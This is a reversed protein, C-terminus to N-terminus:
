ARYVYAAAVMMIIIQGKSDFSALVEGAVQNGGSEEAAESREQQRSATRACAAGRALKSRSFSVALAHEFGVARSAVVSQGSSRTIPRSELMEELLLIERATHRRGILVHAAGDDAAAFVHRREILDEIVVLEVVHDGVQVGQLSAVM